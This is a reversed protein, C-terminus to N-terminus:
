SLLIQYRVYWREKRKSELCGTRKTIKDRQREEDLVTPRHEGERVCRMYLRGNNNQGKKIGFGSHKAYSNYFFYADNFTRFEQGISPILETKLEPDHTYTRLELPTERQDPEIPCPLTVNPAHYLPDRPPIHSSVPMKSAPKNQCLKKAARQDHVEDEASAFHENSNNENSRTNQGSDMDSRHSSCTTTASTAINEINNGKQMQQRPQRFVPKSCIMEEDCNIPSLPDKPAGTWSMLVEDDDDESSSLVTRLPATDSIIIHKRKNSEESVQQKDTNQKDRATIITKPVETQCNIGNIMHRPLRFVPKTYVLEQDCIIPSQPPKKPGEWSIIEEDDITQNPVLKPQKNQLFGQCRMKCPYFHSYESSGASCWSGSSAMM